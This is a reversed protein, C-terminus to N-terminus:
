GLLGSGGPATKSGVSLGEPVSVLVRQEENSEQGGHVPFRYGTAFFLAQQGAEGHSAADPPLSM